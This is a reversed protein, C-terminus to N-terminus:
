KLGVGGQAAFAYSDHVGSAFGRAIGKADTAQTQINVQGINVETSSGGRAMRSMIGNAYNASEPFMGAAGKGGGNYAMLAQRLNGYKALLDHMYNAAARASADFDMPNSLGYQAATKDMFQFPGKAGKPSIMKGKGYSTEQGYMEWLVGAPLGWASELSSLLKKKGGAGSSATPAGGGWSGTAGGTSGAASSGGGSLWDLGKAGYYAWGAWTSLAQNIYGSVIGSNLAKRGSQEMVDILRSWAQTRQIALDADRQNAANLQQQLALQKELQDGVERMVNFTQESFGAQGLLAMANGKDKSMAVAQQMLKMMGEVNGSKALAQFQALGDGMGAGMFLRAFAGTSPDGGYQKFNESIKFATRFAADMDAASGGFKGAMNEWASLERTAVGLNAALRGVAADGTTIREVFKALGAGGLAVGLMGMIETKIKGFAAATVKAREAMEKTHRDTEDRTKKLAERTDKEGQKFGSADLGLTVLLSDIITSM